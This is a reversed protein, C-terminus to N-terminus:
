VDNQWIVALTSHFVCVFITYQRTSTDGVPKSYFSVELTMLQHFLLAERWVINVFQLYHAIKRSNVLVFRGVDRFSSRLKIFNTGYM